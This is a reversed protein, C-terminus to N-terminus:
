GVTRWRQTAAMLQEPEWNGVAIRPVVYASAGEVPGAVNVFGMRYGARAAERANRRRLTGPAGYPYALLQPAQGLMEGLRQRSASLEATSELRTLPGLASHSCTHSGIEFLPAAALQAAQKLSMRRHMDCPSASTVAVAELRRLADAVTTRHARMLRLNLERLGSLRTGMDRFNLRVVTHGIRLSLRDVTVPGRLVHDVRDWWFEQPDTFADTTLFFTAPLGLQELAPAAVTANDAYGDDFTIAAAPRDRRARIEGAAVIEFSQALAKIQRVFRDPDVVMGLPDAQGLPAIRHYLVVVDAGRPRRRYPWRPAVRRIPGVLVRAASRADM